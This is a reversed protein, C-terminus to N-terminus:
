RCRVSVQVSCKGGHPTFHFGAGDLALGAKQDGACGAEFGLTIKLDGWFCVFLVGSVSFAGKQFVVTM